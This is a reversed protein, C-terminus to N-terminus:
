QVGLEYISPRARTRRDDNREHDGRDRAPESRKTVRLEGRHDWDRARGVRIRVRRKPSIMAHIMPQSKIRSYATPFM